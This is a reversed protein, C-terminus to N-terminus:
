NLISKAAKSCIPYFIPLFNLVAMMSEFNALEKSFFSNLPLYHLSEPSSRELGHGFLRWRDFCEWNEIFFSLLAFGYNGKCRQDNQLKNHHSTNPWKLRHQGMLFISERRVGNVDLQIAYGSIKCPKFAIKMRAIFVSSESLLCSWLFISLCSFFSAIQDQWDSFVAM